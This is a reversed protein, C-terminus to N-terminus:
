SKLIPSCYSSHKSDWNAEYMIYRDYLMCICMCVVLCVCVCVYVCMCVCVCVYVCLCEKEKTEGMEKM